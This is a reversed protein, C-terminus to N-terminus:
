WIFESVTASAPCTIYIDAALVNRFSNHLRVPYLSKAMVKCESSDGRAWLIQQTWLLSKTVCYKKDCDCNKSGLFLRLPSFFFFISRQILLQFYKNQIVLNSNSLLSWIKRSWFNLVTKGKTVTKSDRDQHM